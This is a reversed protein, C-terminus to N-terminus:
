IHSICKTSEKLFSTLLELPFCLPFNYGDRPKHISKILVLRRNVKVRAGCVCRINWWALMVYYQTYFHLSLMQNKFLKGVTKYLYM